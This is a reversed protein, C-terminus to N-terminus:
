WLAKATGTNAVVFYVGRPLSHLDFEQYEAGPEGHNVTRGLLDILNATRDAVLVRDGVREIPLRAVQPRVYLENLTNAFYHQTLQQAINLMAISDATSLEPQGSAPQAFLVFDMDITDGPIWPESSKSSLLLRADSKQSLVLDHRQDILFSYRESDTVPDSYIDWYRMVTIGTTTRHPGQQGFMTVGLMPETTSGDTYFVAALAGENQQVRKLRDDGEYFIDADIVTAVVPDFVTDKGSYIIESHVLAVDKL